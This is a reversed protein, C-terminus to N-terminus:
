EMFRCCRNRHLMFTKSDTYLLM